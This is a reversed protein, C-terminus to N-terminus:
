LSVPVFEIDYRTVIHSRPPAWVAVFSAESVSSQEDPMTLKVADQRSTRQDLSQNRTTDPRRCSGLSIGPQDVESM